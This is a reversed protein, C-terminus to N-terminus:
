KSEMENKDKLEDYYAKYRYITRESVNNRRAIEVMTMGSEYGAVFDNYIAMWKANHKQYPRSLRDIYEAFDKGNSQDNHSADVDCGIKHVATNM